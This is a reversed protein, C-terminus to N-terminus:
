HNLLNYIIIIKFIKIIKLITKYQISKIEMILNNKSLNNM